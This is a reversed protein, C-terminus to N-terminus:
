QVSNVQKELWNVGHEWAKKFLNGVFKAKKQKNNVMIYCSPYKWGLYKLGHKWNNIMTYQVYLLKFGWQTVTINETPSRYGSHCQTECMSGDRQQYGESLKRLKIKM